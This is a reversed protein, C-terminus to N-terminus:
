SDLVASARDAVPQQQVGVLLWLAWALPFAPERGGALRDALVCDGGRTCARRVFAGCRPEDVGVAVSADLTATPCCRQWGALGGPKGSGTARFRALGTRLPGPHLLAGPSGSLSRNAPRPAIM